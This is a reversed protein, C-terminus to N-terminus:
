RMGLAEDWWRRLPHGRPPDDNGRERLATLVAALADGGLSRRESWERVLDLSSRLAVGREELMRTAKKDDTVVVCRRHIALAATMAEGDDVARSLDIFTLLEEEAEAELVGLRGGAVLAGLDIPARERADEGTGGRFVYQAERAVVDVIAVPGDVAALIEAMRGTASLNIVACADLLVTTRDLM